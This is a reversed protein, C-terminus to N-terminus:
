LKLDSTGNRSLLYISLCIYVRTCQLIGVQINQFFSLCPAFCPVSTAYNYINWEVPKSLNLPYLYIGYVKLFYHM